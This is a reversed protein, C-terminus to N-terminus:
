QLAFFIKMNVLTSYDYHWITRNLHEMRPTIIKKLYHPWLTDFVKEPCVSFLSIYPTFFDHFSSIQLFSYVLGTMVTLTLRGKRMMVNCVCAMVYKCARM